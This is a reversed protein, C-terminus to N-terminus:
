LGNSVDDPPEVPAGRDLLLRVIEVHGKSSAIHLAASGGWQLIPVSFTLM